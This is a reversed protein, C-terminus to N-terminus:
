NPAVKGIKSVWHHSDSKMVKIVLVGVVAKGGCVIM